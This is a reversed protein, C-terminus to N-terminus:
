LINIIEFFTPTPALPTLVKAVCAFERACGLALSQGLQRIPPFIPTCDLSLMTVLPGWDMLLTAMFALAKLVHRM